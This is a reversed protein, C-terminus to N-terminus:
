MVSVKGMVTCRDLTKCEGEWFTSSVLRTYTCWSAHEIMGLKCTIVNMSGPGACKEIGDPELIDVEFDQVQGTLSALLM